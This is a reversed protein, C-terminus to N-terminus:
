IMAVWPAADDVEGAGSPDAPPQPLDNLWEVRNRGKRKARYLVEDLDKFLDAHDDPARDLYCAAISVTANVMRANWFIRQAAFADRLRLAIAEADQADDVRAVVAFEEGGLRALLDSERCCDRATKAFLQLMADGALHGHQDNIRKFHDIDLWLVALRGGHDRMAALRKRLKHEFARRNLLGTLPDHNAAERLQDLLADRVAMASSITLPVLVLFAVAIRVSVVNHPNAMDQGIDVVGLGIATMCAIGMGMTIVATTPVSYTLACLLLGPMPFMISGPGDFQIAAICSALLLLIPWRPARNARICRWLQQPTIRRVPFNLIAPLVMLYNVLDGAPWTLLTQAPSGDFAVVVLAAGCLGAVLCAPLLLVVIRLVSHVRQLALDSPDLRMLFIAAALSGLLNTAAFMASMPLSRGFLLDAAIFGVLAGVWGSPCHFARHRLMLGALLANAPWFSVSFAHRTALGVVSAAFVALGIIALARAGAGLRDRMSTADRTEARRESVDASPAASFSM